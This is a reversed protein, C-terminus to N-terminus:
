GHRVEIRLLWRLRAAMTPNAQLRPRLSTSFKAYNAAVCSAGADGVHPNKTEM